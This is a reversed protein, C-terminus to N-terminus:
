IVEDVGTAAIRFDKTHSRGRTGDTLKWDCYITVTSNLGLGGTEAQTLTWSIYDEDVTAESLEKTLVATGYTKFVLYAESITTPDITPFNIKITPTTFQVIVNNCM